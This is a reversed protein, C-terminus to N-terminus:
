KYKHGLTKKVTLELIGMEAVDGTSEVATM